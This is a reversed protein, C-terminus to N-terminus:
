PTITEGDNPIRIKSELGKEILTSLLDKRKVFCHNVTDMHVAIIKTQPLKEHVSVVDSPTMTIPDGTLFKAGGTNLITVTPKHEALAKEVDDCWITDGAVYVSENKSKFVFGSVEGMKKGIEGTGHKGNTRHITIEKWDFSTSVPQVNKFGQAKIKEEDSPQCIILKDKDILNQAAIDWHDRHTHTVLVADAESLIQALESNTVPLEVMPIRIDNGCNQVPDLKDKASLMPDVLIKKGDIEVVLTAHRLLRIKLKSEKRKASLLFPTATLFLLLRQVFTM